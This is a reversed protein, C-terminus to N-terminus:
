IWIVERMVTKYISEENKDLGISLLFKDMEKDEELMLDLWLVDVEIDFLSKIYEAIDQRTSDGELVIDIDSNEHQTGNAYSGAIGIKINDYKIYLPELQEKIKELTIM